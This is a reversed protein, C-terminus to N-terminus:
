EKGSFIDYLESFTVSQIDNQVCFKLLEELNHLYNRSDQESDTYPNIGPLVEVNHFMMNFVTIDNNINERSVAKVIRLLQNIESYYPRFWLIKKSFFSKKITTVPIELVTGSDSDELIGNESIFYPQNKAGRYDIPVHFTDDNWFVGPTVSSDVKYGLKSLSRITEKRANFRGARFSVPQKNFCNQFMLTLTRIKEYEIEPTYSCQNGNPLIGAYTVHEKLPTIFESHLHAGLEFDGVLNKLVDVSSSDELVVNNILYTPKFNYKNFLPQLIRAIGVNIGSFSLPDSYRWSQSSSDPEVDISITIYYRM